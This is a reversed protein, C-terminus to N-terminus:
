AIDKIISFQNWFDLIHFSGKKTVKQMYFKSLKKYGLKVAEEFDIERHLTLYISGSWLLKTPQETDFADFYEISTNLQFTWVLHKSSNYHIPDKFYYKFFLGHTMEMPMKLIFVQEKKPTFQKLPFGYFNFQDSYDSSFHISADENEKLRYNENARHGSGIKLPPFHIQPVTTALNDQDFNQTSLEYFALYKPHHIPKDLARDSNTDM